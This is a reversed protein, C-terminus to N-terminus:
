HYSDPVRCSADVMTMRSQCSLQSWVALHVLTDSCCVTHSSCHALTHPELCGTHISVLSVLTVGPLTLQLVLVTCCHETEDCCTIDEIDTSTGRLLLECFACRCCHPLLTYRSTICNLTIDESHASTGGLCLECFACHCCGLILCYCCLVCHSLPVFMRPM